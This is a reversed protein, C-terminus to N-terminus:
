SERAADRAACWGNEWALHANSDRAYPNADAPKGETFAQQGELYVELRPDDEPGRPNPEPRWPGLQQYPGTQRPGGEHAAGESRQALFRQFEPFDGLVTQDIGEPHRDLLEEGRGTLRYRGDDLIAIATAGALFAYAEDLREKLDAMDDPAPEEAVQRIALLQAKADDLSAPGERATRLIALMLNPEHLLIPEEDSM